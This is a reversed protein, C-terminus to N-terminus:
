VREKKEKFQHIQLTLSALLYYISSQSEGFKNLSDLSIYVYLDYRIFYVFAIIFKWSKNVFYVCEFFFFIRARQCLFFQISNIIFKQYALVRAQLMMAFWWCCCCCEFFCLSFSLFLTHTHATTTLLPPSFLLFVMCFSQSHTFSYTLWATQNWPFIFLINTLGGVSEITWYKYTYM